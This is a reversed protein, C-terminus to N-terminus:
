PTKELRWIQWKEQNKLQKFRLKIDAPVCTENVALPLFNLQQYLRELQKDAIAFLLHQRKSNIIEIAFQMLQSAYGKRRHEPAIWLGRILWGANHSKMACLRVIGIAQQQNSAKHVRKLWFM